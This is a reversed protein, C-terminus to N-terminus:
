PTIADPIGGLEYEEAWKPARVIELIGRSLHVSERKSLSAFGLPTGLGGLTFSSTYNRSDWWSKWYWM